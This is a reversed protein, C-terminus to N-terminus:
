AADGPDDTEPEEKLEKAIFSRYQALSEGIEQLQAQDAQEGALKLLQELHSLAAKASSHRSAFLKNAGEEQTAPDASMFRHYDALILKASTAFDLDIRVKRKPAM